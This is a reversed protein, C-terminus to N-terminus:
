ARSEVQSDSRLAPLAIGFLSGKGPVGESEAWVRGRHEHVISRVLSLGLGTGPIHDTGPQRARYFHDFIHPLDEPPIGVGTDQVTFIVEGDEERLRVTIDGGSSTYKVANDLLNSIAQLLMRRDGQVPAVGPEIQTWLRLGRMEAQWRYENVVQQVLHGMDLIEERRGEPMEIRELELLEDILREMAKLHHLVRRALDAQLGTLPPLEELLVQFFGSALQLPNRLDHSAIRIIQSKLQNLRHLATVDAMALVYGIREGRSDSVPAVQAAMMRDDSLTVQISERDNVDGRSIREAVECLRQHQIVDALPRNLVASEQFGLLNEAARNALRVRGILDTVLVAYDVSDLIARLYQQSAEVERFLRANELAVGAQNALAMLADVDEQRFARPEYSQVSIAGIAHGRALIPVVILSEPCEESAAPELYIPVRRVEELTSLLVPRGTQIAYAALYRTPDFPVRDPPYLRGQDYLLEYRIENREADYLAIWFNSADMLRSAGEYILKLLADLQLSSGMMRGIENVLSLTVVQRQSQHTTKILERVVMFGMLFGLALLLAPIIGFSTYLVVALVGLPSFALRFLLIQPSLQSIFLSLPTGRLGNEVLMFTLDVGTAVLFLLLAYGITTGEWRGPPTPGGVAKYVTGGALWMVIQTGSARAAHAPTRHFILLESLFAGIGAAWAATVPGFILACALHFATELSLYNNGLLPLAFRNAGLALFVFVLLPFWPWLYSARTFVMLWVLGGALVTWSFARFLRPYRIKEAM